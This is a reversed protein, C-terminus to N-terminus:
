SDSGEIDFAQLARVDRVELSYQRGHASVRWILLVGRSGRYFRIEGAGQTGITHRM